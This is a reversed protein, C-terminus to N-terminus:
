RLKQIKMGKDNALKIIANEATNVDTSAKNIKDFVSMIKAQDQTKMAEDIDNMAEIMLALGSQVKGVLPKMEESKPKLAGYQKQIDALVVQFEGLAKQVDEPSRAMSMKRQFDNMFQASYKTSVANDVKIYDEIDSKVPDGFCGGLTIAFVAVFLGLLFRKM